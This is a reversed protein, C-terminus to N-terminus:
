LSEGRSEEPNILEIIRVGFKDDVVVVEGRAVLRENVYIDVADGALKNLEIVSGSQLELIQKLPMRTRGLEVKVQLNVDMLLDLSAQNGGGGSRVPASPQIQDNSNIGFSQDM